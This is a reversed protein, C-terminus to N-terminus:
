WREGSFDRATGQDWLEIEVRQRASEQPDAAIRDFAQEVENWFMREEMQKLDTEM